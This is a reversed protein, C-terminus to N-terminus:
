KIKLFFIKEIEIKNEFFINKVCIFKELLDSDSNKKNFNLIKSLSMESNKTYILLKNNFINKKIIGFDDDEDIKEKFEFDDKTDNCIKNKKNKKMESSKLIFFKEKLILTFCIEMKLYFENKKPNYLSPIKSLIYEEGNIMEFRPFKDNEIKEFNECLNTKYKSFLLTLIIILIKKLM